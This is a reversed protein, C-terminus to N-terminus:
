NGTNKYINGPSDQLELVQQRTREFLANPLNEHYVSDVRQYTENQECMSPIADVEIYKYLAKGKREIVVAKRRCRKVLYSQNDKNQFRM